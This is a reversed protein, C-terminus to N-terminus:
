VHTLEAVEAAWSQVVGDYTRGYLHRGSAGKGVRWMALWDGGDRETDQETTVTRATDRNLWLTPRRDRDPGGDPLTPVDPTYEGNQKHNVPVGRVTAQDALSLAWAPHMPRAKRTSEGGTILLSLPYRATNLHGGIIVPELLPEASIFREAPGPLNLLIPLRDDAERQGEVSTGMWVNPPWDNGWVDKTMEEVLDIRKTLLMWRLFPTEEILRFLEARWEPLMPHDEFVDALSSCFVRPRTGDQQARRNWTRPRNRNALTTLRRPATRGWVSATRRGDTAPHWRREQAEAYCLRCGRSIKACGIWHNHTADCWNIHTFAGM